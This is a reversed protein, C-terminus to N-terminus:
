VMKERAQWMKYAHLAGDVDTATPPEHTGEQGPSLMSLEERM